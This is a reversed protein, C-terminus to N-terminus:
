TGDEPQNRGYPRITGTNGRPRRIMPGIAARHCNTATAPTSASAAQPCLAAVPAALVEGDGVVEGGELVAGGALM